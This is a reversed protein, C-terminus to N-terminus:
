KDRNMKNMLVWAISLTFLLNLTGIILIKTDVSLSMYFQIPASGFQVIGGIAGFLSLILAVIFLYPQNKEYYEKFSM